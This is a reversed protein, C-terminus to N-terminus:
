VASAPFREWVRHAPLLGQLQELAQAATETVVVGPEGPVLGAEALATPGTGWAVVAKAHDQHELLDVA